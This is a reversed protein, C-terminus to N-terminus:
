GQPITTHYTKNQIISNLNCPSLFPIVHEELHAGLSSGVMVIETQRTTWRTSVYRMDLSLGSWLMQTKIQFSCKPAYKKREGWTKETGVTVILADRMETVNQLEWKKKM